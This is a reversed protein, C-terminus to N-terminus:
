AREVTTGAIKDHWTQQDADWLMWLYGLCCVFSSIYKGITERLAARLFSPNSGDPGVVRVGLAMKGLTQGRAALMGGSYVISFLLALVQGIWQAPGENVPPAAGRPGSGAGQGVYYILVPSLLALFILGDVMSALLRRVFAEVSNMEPAAAAYVTNVPAGLPSGPADYSSASPSRLPTGCFECSVGPRQWEGCKPCAISGPPPTGSPAVVGSMGERVGQERSAGALAEGPPVVGDWGRSGTPKAGPLFSGTASPAQHGLAQLRAKAQAHEPDIRLVERYALAAGPADGATELAAGLNFRYRANQPQLEVAAQLVQKAQAHRGKRSYAVGLCARAEADRDDLAVARGLCDIARDLDGERLAAIGQERPSPASTEM